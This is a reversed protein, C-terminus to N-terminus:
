STAAHAGQLFQMTFAPSKVNDYSKWSDFLPLFLICMRGECQTADRKPDVALRSWLSWVIRWGM